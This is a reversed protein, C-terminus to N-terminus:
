TALGFVEVLLSMLKRAEEEHYKLLATVHALSFLCSELRPNDLDM